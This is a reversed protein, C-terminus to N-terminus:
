EWVLVGNIGDGCGRLSFGKESELVPKDMESADLASLFSAIVICQIPEAPLDLFRAVRKWELLM